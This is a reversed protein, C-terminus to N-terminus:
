LARNIESQSYYWGQQGNVSIRLRLWGLARMSASITMAEARSLKGEIGLLAGVEPASLPGSAGTEILKAALRKTAQDQRYTM